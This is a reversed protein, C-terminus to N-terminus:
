GGGVKPFLALTDGNSLVFDKQVHRGNVMMVGIPYDAVNIGTESIVDSVITGKPYQRKEIKFKDQRYQAFLKVTVEISDM